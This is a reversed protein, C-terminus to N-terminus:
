YVLGMQNHVTLLKLDNQSISRLCVSVQRPINYNNEPFSDFLNEELGAKAAEVDNHFNLYNCLNPTNPDLYSRKLLEVEDDDLGPPRPFSRAFQTLDIVNLIPKVVHVNFQELDLM